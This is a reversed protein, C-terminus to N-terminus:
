QNSWEMGPRHRAYGNSLPGPVGLAPWGKLAAAVAPSGQNMVADFDRIV